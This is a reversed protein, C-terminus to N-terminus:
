CQMMNHGNSKIENYTVHMECCQIDNDTQLEKRSYGPRIYRITFSGEGINDGGVVLLQWLPDNATTISRSAIM